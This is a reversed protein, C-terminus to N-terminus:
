RSIGIVKYIVTDHDASDIEVGLGLNALCEAIPEIDDLAADYNEKATNDGTDHRLFVEGRIESAGLWTLGAKNLADQLAQQKTM